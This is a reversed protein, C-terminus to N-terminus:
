GETLLTCAPDKRAEMIWRVRIHVVPDKAYLTCVVHDNKHSGTNSSRASHQVLDMTIIINIIIFREELEM